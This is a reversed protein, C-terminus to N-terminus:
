QVERAVQQGAGDVDLPGLRAIQQYHLQEFHLRPVEPEAGDKGPEAEEGVEQGAGIQDRPLDVTTVGPRRRQGPDRNRAVRKRARDSYGRRRLEDRHRTTPRRSGIRNM